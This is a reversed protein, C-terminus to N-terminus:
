LIHISPSSPVLFGPGMKMPFCRICTFTIHSASRVPHILAGKELANVLRDQDCVGLLAGQSWAQIEHGYTWSNMICISNLTGRLVFERHRM